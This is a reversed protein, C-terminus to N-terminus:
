PENIKFLLFSFFINLYQEMHLIFGVVSLALFDLFFFPAKQQM